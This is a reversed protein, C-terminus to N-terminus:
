LDATPREGFNYNVATTPGGLPIDIASIVDNGVTGGRSGAADLGDAYATPQTERVTYTGPRLGTFAYTGDPLTVTTRTVVNGLHDTGTLTVIVGGIPPEGVAYAGDNNLDEYVCGSLTNSNLSM